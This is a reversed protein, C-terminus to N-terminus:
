NCVYCYAFAISLPNLNYHPLPLFLYHPSFYFNKSLKITYKKKRLIGNWSLLRAFIIYCVDKSKQFQNRVLLFRCYSKWNGAALSLDPWPLVEFRAKSPSTNVSRGFNRKPNRRSLRLAIVGSLEHREPPSSACTPRGFPERAQRYIEAPIDKLNRSAM